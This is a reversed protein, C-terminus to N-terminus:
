EVGEDFIKKDLLLTEKKLNAKKIINELLAILNEATETDKIEDIRKSLLKAVELVDKKGEDTVHNDISKNIKTNLKEKVKCQFIEKESETFDKNGSFIEVPLESFEALREVTHKSVRGRQKGNSIYNYWTGKSVEAVRQIAEEFPISTNKQIMAKIEKFREAVIEENGETVWVAQDGGKNAM